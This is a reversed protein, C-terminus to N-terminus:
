RSRIRFKRGAGKGEEGEANHNNRVQKNRGTWIADFLVLQATPLQPIHLSLSTNLLLLFHGIQTRKKKRQLRDGSPIQPIESPLGGGGQWGPHFEVDRVTNMGDSNKKLISVEDVHLHSKVVLNSTSFPREQWTSDVPHPETPLIASGFGWHYFEM